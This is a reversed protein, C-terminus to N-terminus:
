TSLLQAQKLVRKIINNIQFLVLEKHSNIFFLCGLVSLPYLFRTEGQNCYTDAISFDSRLAPVFLKMLGRNEIVEIPTLHLM